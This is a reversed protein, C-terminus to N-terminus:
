PHWLAVLGDLRLRESFLTKGITGEIAQRWWQGKRIIAVDHLPVSIAIKHTSALWRRAVGEGGIADILGNAVAQRGTFIRGDSLALAADRALNRREAVMAVFMEYMDRVVSEAAARAAADFPELPNPQGKLPSSKVSEPKVGLKDFLGTMDFTQLIVGISGTITAERAVIYDAAIATMYGGSAALQGMVAVVPKKAAVARLGRYLNEGGVVTGGPSDIRVIVAQVNDDSALNAIARDRADDATIVGNIALRAVYSGALLGSREDSNEHVVIAVLGVLATVALIQWVSLHRKLRRRDLM